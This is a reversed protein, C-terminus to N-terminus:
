WEGSEIVKLEKNSGNTDQYYLWAEGVSTNILKRNYHSPYGELHDLNTLMTDDIEYVEVHINQTPGLIAAPYWDNVNLMQFGSIREVSKLRANKLLRANSRGHKLTGYVAVKLSM